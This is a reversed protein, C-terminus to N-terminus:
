SSGREKNSRLLELQNQLTRLKREQRDRSSRTRQSAQALNKIRAFDDPGQAKALADIIQEELELRTFRDAFRAWGVEMEDSITELISTITQLDSGVTELDDKVDELESAEERQLYDQIMVRVMNNVTSQRRQARESIKAHLDEALMLNVHVGPKKKPTKAVM